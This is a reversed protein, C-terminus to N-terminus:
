KGRNAAKKSNPKGTKAAKPKAWGAKRKAPKAPKEEKKAASPKSGRGAAAPKGTKKNRNDGGRYEGGPRHGGPPRILCEKGFGILDERGAKELAEKMASFAAKAEPYYRVRTNTYLPYGAAKWLYRFQNAAGPDEASLQLLNQEAMAAEDRQLHKRVTRLQKGVGPDGLLEFLLYMCLGMVPLAMILMIWPMKM